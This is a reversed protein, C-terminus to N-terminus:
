LGHSLSLSLSLSLNVQYKLGYASGHSGQMRRRGLEFFLGVLFDFSGEPDKQIQFFWGVCHKLTEQGLFPTDESNTHTYKKGQKREEGAAFRELIAGCILDL